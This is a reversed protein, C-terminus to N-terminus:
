TNVLQPSLRSILLKAYGEHGIVFGVDPDTYYHRILNLPDSNLLKLNESFGAAFTM